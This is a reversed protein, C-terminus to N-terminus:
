GHAGHRERPDDGPDRQHPHAHDGRRELLAPWGRQHRRGGRQDRRRGPHVRRDPTPRPRDLRPERQRQEHRDQGRRLHRVMGGAGRPVLGPRHRRAGAPVRARGALRPGQDPRGPDGGPDHGRSLPRHAHAGGGGGGGRHQRGAPAHGPRAPGRPRRRGPRRSRARRVVRRRRGAPAHARLPVRGRSAGVAGGEPCLQGAPAPTRHATHRHARHPRCRAAREHAGGCRAGRRHRPRAGPVAGCDPRDGPGGGLIGVGIRARPSSRLWALASVGSGWGSSSSSRM